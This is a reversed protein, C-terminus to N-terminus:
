GANNSKNNRSNMLNKSSQNTFRQIMLALQDSSDFSDNSTDRLQYIGRVLDNVVLNILSNVWADDLPFKTDMVDCGCSAADLLSAQEIDNFLAKMEVATLYFFNDNMSKVYLHNDPGISAYITNQTFNNGAYPFRNFDIYVLKNKRGLYDVPYISYDGITMTFPIEEVSKLITENPCINVVDPKLNIRIMQYNAESLTRKHTNYQSNLIYNRYKGCLFKIHDENFQSDDSIQKTIDIIMYILERWTM